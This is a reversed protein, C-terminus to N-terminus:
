KREKRQVYWDALQRIRRGNEPNGEHEGYGEFDSEYCSYETAKFRALYKVDNWSLGYDGCEDPRCGLGLLVGTIRAFKVERTREDDYSLGIGWRGSWKSGNYFPWAERDVQVVSEADWCAPMSYWLIGNGNSDRLRSFIGKEREEIIAAAEPFYEATDGIADSARWGALRVLRFCNKELEEVSQKNVWERYMEWNLRFDGGHCPYPRGLIRQALPISLEPFKGLAIKEQLEDDPMDDSLGMSELLNDYNEVIYANDNYDTYCGFPHDPMILWSSYSGILNANLIQLLFLKCDKSYADSKL